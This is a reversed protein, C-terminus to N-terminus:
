GRLLHLAAKVGRRKDLLEHQMNHQEYNREAIKQAITGATRVYHWMRPSV